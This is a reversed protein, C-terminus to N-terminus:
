QEETVAPTDAEPPYEEAKPPEPPPEAPPRASPSGVFAVPRMMAEDFETQNLYGYRLLRSLLEAKRKELYSTVGKAPTYSRPSPIMGALVAAEEPRLAGPSKGFYRQSAPGIGYVGDGWEIVNLYIEFIRQKTLEKELRQAIFFESIKRLPNKSTSLYLNKALQQTITSAGRAFRGEEWDKKVAEKIEDMDYGSHQFFAGDEAVLVANRLHPSIGNYSSWSRIPKPQTNKEAARQQMLATVTPNTTKLGSVDPLSALAYVAFAGVVVVLLALGIAIRKILLRGKKAKM